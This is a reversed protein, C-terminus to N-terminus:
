IVGGIPLSHWDVRRRRAEPCWRLLQGVDLRSPGDALNSATGVRSFWPITGADALLEATSDILTGSRVASSYGKTLGRRAADQDIFWLTYRSAIIDQWVAAAVLVPLLEAQGIVQQGGQSRWHEVVSDPVVESFYEPSRAGDLLVGGVTVKEENAGDTFVVVPSANIDTRVLRPKARGLYGNLWVLSSRLSDSIPVARPASAHMALERLPRAGCRGFHAERLFRVKQALSAAESGRMAGRDLIGTVINRTDEVREPKPAVVIRGNISDSLDVKVGLPEFIQDFPKDKDSDESAQIGLIKLMDKFTREASDSLPACEVCPFDDYYCTTLLM